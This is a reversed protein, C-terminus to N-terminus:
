NLGKRQEAYGFLSLDDSGFLPAKEIGSLRLRKASFDRKPEFHRCNPNEGGTNLPGCSYKQEEFLGERHRRHSRKPYGQFPMIRVFGRLPCRIPRVNHIDQCLPEQWIIALVMDTREKCCKHICFIISFDVKNWRFFKFGPIISIIRILLLLLACYPWIKDLNVICKQVYRIKFKELRFFPKIVPNERTTLLYFQTLILVM